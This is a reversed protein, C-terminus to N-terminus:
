DTDRVAQEIMPYDKSQIPINTIATSVSGGIDGGVHNPNVHDVFPVTFGVVIDKGVHVDSMIRIKAKDFMPYDFLHYIM